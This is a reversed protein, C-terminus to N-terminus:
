KMAGIAKLADEVCEVLFPGSGSWRRQWEIQAKTLKRKSAYRRGDKVELLYTYGGLGVLLDPCGCGVSALSQVSAGVKRLAKVIEAQNADVSRWRGPSRKNM